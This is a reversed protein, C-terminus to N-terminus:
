LIQFPDGLSCEQSIIEFDSWHLLYKNSVLPAFYKNGSNGGKKLKRKEEKFILVVSYLQTTKTM